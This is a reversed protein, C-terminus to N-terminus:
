GRACTMSRSTRGSSTTARRHRRCAARRRRHRSGCRRCRSRRRRRSSSSSSNRRRRHRPVLRSARSTWTGSASADVDRRGRRRQAGGTARKDTGTHVCRLSSSHARGVGSWASHAVARFSSISARSERAACAVSPSNLALAVAYRRRPRSALPDLVRGRRARDRHHGDRGPAAGRVRRGRHGCGGAGQDQRTGGLVHM